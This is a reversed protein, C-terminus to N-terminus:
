TPPTPSGAYTVDVTLGAPTTVTTVPKPNTDYTQTTNSIAVTAAAKNITLSGTNSGEYNADNITAVIAYTGANTPPTPSGAYTVDVALGAPTTVTTVPKPNTDYTQTTNSIAVTAAAKNITLSGTNSGEYNTDNITAVIAYTGANTPPTPSGAYTVDVALGAPTTVTTVPKPNTDYTQTTNSIAVTAAAKNITLSGTNSGEYNADNITAVIAYTGANTPPTPSGAYTVDVALGAPTTVTTVPKPNTDYTQTANSIAVTAAAKNITLDFSQPVSEGNATATIEFSFMGTETPTGSVTGTGDSNDIFNLGAPLGGPMLVLMIPDGDDDSAIINVSYPSNYEGNPVTTTVFSPPVFGFIPTTLLLVNLIILLARM